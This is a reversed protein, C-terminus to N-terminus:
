SYAVCRRGASFLARLARPSEPRCRLVPGVVMLAENAKPGTALRAAAGLSTSRAAKTRRRSAPRACVNALALLHSIVWARDSLGARSNFAYYLHSEAPGQKAKQHECSLGQARLGHERGLISLRASPVYRLAM